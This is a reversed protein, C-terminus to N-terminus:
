VYKWYFGMFIKGSKLAKYISKKNLNTTTAIEDISNYSMLFKGELDLKIVKKLKTKFTKIPPLSDLNDSAYRWQYKKLIKKNGRCAAIIDAKNYHTNYAADTISKWTKIRYGALSYQIIPVGNHMIDKINKKNIVIKNFTNGKILRWYFGNCTLETDRCVKLITFPITKVNIAADIITDFTTLLNGELDYKAVPYHISNVKGGLDVNYTDRRKIFHKNVIRAELELVEHETDVVALTTRIFNAIGYKKVANPFPHKQKNGTGNTYVGHGLYGDFKNPTFTKHTGVYIKGNINNKTCYLIYKM